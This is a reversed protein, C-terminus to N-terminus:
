DEGGQAQWHKIFAANYRQYLQRAPDYSINLLLTAKAVPGSVLASALADLACRRLSRHLEETHATEITRIIDRICM